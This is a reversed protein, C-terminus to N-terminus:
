HCAVNQYSGATFSRSPKYVYHVDPSLANPARFLLFLFLFLCYFKIMGTLKIAKLIKEKIM